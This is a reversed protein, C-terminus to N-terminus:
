KCIQAMALGSPIYSFGYISYKNKNFFWFLIANEFSCFDMKKKSQKKLQDVPPGVIMLPGDTSGPRHINICVCVSMASSPFISFICVASM